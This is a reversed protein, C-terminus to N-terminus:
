DEIADVLRQTRTSSVVGSHMANPLFAFGIEREPDAFALAGGAGPHGFSSPNRGMIGHSNNMMLGLSFVTETFLVRDKGRVLPTKMWRQTIPTFWRNKDKMAVLSYFQALAEATSIAGSSINAARRMAPENMTRASFSGGPELFARRTLSYPDAYASGFESPPPTMKPPIADAARSLEKEPLGFWLDLGLPDAFVRRWYNALSSEKSIRRFLEDVLFGFTRAGYGHTGDYIWNPAQAALAQAIADHDTLGLGEKELAALGAQHSLLQAITINEKGAQAFEPWFTAVKEEPTTGNEQMAHLLCAAGVGKGASWILALTDEKWQRTHAEDCWGQYLAIVKKGRHYVALAAGVELGEDFNKQFAETIKKQLNTLFM